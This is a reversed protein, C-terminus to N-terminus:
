QKSVVDSFNEVSIQDEGLEKIQDALQAKMKNFDRVRCQSTLFNHEQAREGHTKLDNLKVTCYFSPCSASAGQFYNYSQYFDFAIQTTKALTPVGVHVFTFNTLFIKISTSLHLLMRSFNWGITTNAVM